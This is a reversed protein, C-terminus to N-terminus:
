QVDDDSETKRRRMENATPTTWSQKNEKSRQKVGTPHSPASRDANRSVIVSPATTEDGSSLGGNVAGFRSGYRDASIQRLVDPTTSGVLQASRSKAQVREVNFLDAMTTIVVQDTDNEAIVPGINHVKLRTVQEYAESCVRLCEEAARVDDSLCTKSREHGDSNQGNMSHLQEQLSRMTGMLRARNADLVRTTLIRADFHTQIFTDTARTQGLLPAQQEQLSEIYIRARDCIQLCRETVTKENQLDVVM